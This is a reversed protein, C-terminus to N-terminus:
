KNHFNNSKAKLPKFICKHKGYNFIGNSYHLAVGFSKCSAIDVIMDTSVFVVNSM